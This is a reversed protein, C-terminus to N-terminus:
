KRGDETLLYARRVTAGDVKTGKEAIEVADLSVLAELLAAIQTAGSRAIRNPGNRQVSRISFPQTPHTERLWTLLDQAETEAATAPAVDIVRAAEMMGFRVIAIAAQMARPTVSRATHDEYLTLLGSLRLANEAMRLAFPQLANGFRGTEAEADKEVENHFAFWAKRPEGSLTIAPLNLEGPVDCPARNRLMTRLSRNYEECDQQFRLDATEGLDKLMRTGITSEPWCLLFRPLFGQEQTLKDGLFASAFAPQFALWVTVRRRRYHESVGARVRQADGRDWLETLTTITRAKSESTMGHGSLFTGGEATFVATAPTTRLERLLGEITPESLRMKPSAPPTPEPGCEALAEGIDTKVKLAKARQADWVAKRNGFDELRQKYSDMAEEEVADIAACALRDVSSKREGSKAVVAMFLSLPTSAGHAPHIINAMQQGALAIAGLASFACLSLPAQTREQLGHIAMALSEPMENLPFSEATGLQPVLRLPDMSSTRGPQFTEVKAAKAVAAIPSAAPRRDFRTPASM